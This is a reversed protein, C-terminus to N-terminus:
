PMGDWRRLHSPPVGQEMAYPSLWQRQLKSAVTYIPHDGGDDSEGEGDTTLPSIETEM